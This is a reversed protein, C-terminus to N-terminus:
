HALLTPSSSAETNETWPGARVPRREASHPVRSREMCLAARLAVASWTRTKSWCSRKKWRALSNAVRNCYWNSFVISSRSSMPNSSCTSLPTNRVACRSICDLNREPRWTEVLKKSGTKPGHHLLNTPMRHAGLSVSAQGLYAHYGPNSRMHQDLRPKGRRRRAGKVAEDSFQFFHGYFFVDQAPEWDLLKVQNRHAKWHLKPKCPPQHTAAAPKTTTKCRYRKHPEQVHGLPNTLPQVHHQPRMQPYKAPQIQLRFTKHNFAERNPTPRYKTGPSPKSPLLNLTRLARNRCDCLFCCTHLFRNCAPVRASGSSAAACLTAVPM